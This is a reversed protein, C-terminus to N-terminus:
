KKIISQLYEKSKKVELNITENIKTYNIAKNIKDKAEDPSNIIRDELHFLKLIDKIREPRKSPLIVFFEKKFIISFVTAHFSNTLVFTANCFYKLFELPGSTAISKANKVGFKKKSFTYIKNLKKQTTIIKSIPKIRYDPNLIYLLLFKENMKKSQSVKQYWTKTNILLVPDVNVSIKYDSNIKLLLKKTSEERVSIATFQPYNKSILNLDDKKNDGTSAAYSVKEVNIGELFYIKNEKQTIDSNWVQDSGVIVCDLEKECYKKLEEYSNIEKSLNLNYNIFKQYNKMRKFNLPFALISKILNKVGSSNILQNAKKIHISNYKIVQVEAGLKKLFEQLAYCQLVGGYNIVNHFTLIGIRKNNNKQKM